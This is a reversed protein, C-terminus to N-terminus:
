VAAELMMIAICTDHIVLQGALRMRIVVGECEASNETQTNNVEKSSTPVPTSAGRVPPLNKVSTTVPLSHLNMSKIDDQTQGLKKTLSKDANLISSEWASLGSEAEIREMPTIEKKLRLIKLQEAPTMLTLLKDETHKVLQIQCHKFSLPNTM